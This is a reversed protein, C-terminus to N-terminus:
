QRLVTLDFTRSGAADNLTFGGGAKATISPMAGGAASTQTVSVTYNADPLPPSITIANAGAGTSGSALQIQSRDIPGPGTFTIDTGAIGYESGRVDALGGSAVAITSGEDITCPMCFFSCTNAVSVDGFYECGILSAFSNSGEITMNILVQSGYFAVGNGSVGNITFTGSEEDVDSSMINGNM